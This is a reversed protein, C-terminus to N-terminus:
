PAFRLELDAIEYSTMDLSLVGDELTPLSVTRGQFDIQRAFVPNRFCELHVRRHRGETEQLRVVFGFSDPVPETLFPDSEVDPAAAPLPLIRTLVVHRERIRFFWGSPGAAPPGPVPCAYVDMMADLAAQMPYQEDVAIACRFRREQEGAAILITDVMRSGTRRHFPLGCTLITTRMSEDAIEFYHPSEFREGQLGHAAELVSRTQAATSSNWAFRSAFYTAWPSGDPLSEPEVHIDIDFTRRGRYIRFRQEFAALRSGDVPDCLDGSSRIEGVAPGSSTVEIKRCRMESYFTRTPKADPDAPPVTREHLYRFALQQSLRNPRRGYEKVQLIGGTDESIHVEFFENRLVWEDALKRSEATEAAPQTAFWAFGCPPLQVVACRPETETQAAKVPGGSAVGTVADSLPVVVRRAFSLPNFVLVGPRRPAASETAGGNGATQPCVLRALQDLARHQFATLAENLEHPDRDFADPGYAELETELEADTAIAEGRIARATNQVWQSSQFRLRRLFHRQYRSIPDREELAVSRVLFPSLYEREQFSSLRGPTDTEAIFADLTVMRGLVPAYRHIRRLDEYWESTMGPWRAFLLAAVHDQEMTEALRQPFRLYSAAGAAPLPLRALADIVTGDCGQWQIKSQEIEPYIGDYLLIHLASHFGHRRLLQPLQTSFGYRYRGWTRPRAGLVREYAQLGQQLDWILTELPVVPTPVENLEGGIVNVHGAACVERLRTMLEPRAEAIKLLEAGKVLLNFPTDQQLEDLLKEDAMDANLLCLDILYSDVPYFRERSEMLSEYCTRLHKEVATDDGARVGAAAAVAERQLLSEDLNGFHHMCRTLLEIFLYCTGLAYFEAEWRPPVPFRDALPELARATLEDRSTGDSVVHAGNARAQELWDHPLWDRAAAPVFLLKGATFEPPEDARHWTPIAGTAALLCPHWAVAFANLLGGGEAEGLETPFDELGHSPILIIVDDYNM